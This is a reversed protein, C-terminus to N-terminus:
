LHGRIQKILSPARVSWDWTRAYEVAEKSKEPYHGDLYNLIEIVFKNVDECLICGYVGEQDMEELNFAIMPCGCAMAEIPSMSFHHYKKPTPYLVMKSRRYVSFREDDLYGFYTVSPSVRAWDKGKFAENDGDGIIALKSNPRNQRVTEWIKILEDIGKTYHLRGVFVADFEKRELENNYAVNIDVGGHVDVVPIKFGFVDSTTVCAVDAFHNIMFLIPKQSWHHIWNKKPALMYCGAVWKNGKAKHIMAPISDMWFDSASYVFEYKNFDWLAVWCGVIIKLIYCFLFPKFDIGMLTRIKPKCDDAMHLYINDGGSLGGKIRANAIFLIM